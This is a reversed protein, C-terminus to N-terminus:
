DSIGADIFARLTAKSEDDLWALQVLPSMRSHIKAVPDSSFIRRHHKFGTAIALLYILGLIIVPEDEPDRAAKKAGNRIATVVNEDFFAGRALEVFTAKCSEDALVGVSELWAAIPSERLQQWRFGIDVDTTYLTQEPGTFFSPASQSMGSFSCSDHSRSLRLGCNAILDDFMTQDLAGPTSLLAMIERFEESIGSELESLSSVPLYDGICHKMHSQFKRIVTRVANAASRADRGSRKPRGPLSKKRKYEVAPISVGIYAAKAEGSMLKETRGRRRLGDSLAFYDELDKPSLCADVLKARSNMGFHMFRVETQEDTLNDRIAQDFQDLTTIRKDTSFELFEGHRVRERAEVVSNVYNDPLCVAPYVIQLPVPSQSNIRNIVLLADVPTVFGNGDVDLETRVPADSSDTDRNLHNIIRLADDSAVVGDGNVDLPDRDVPAFSDSNGRVVHFSYTGGEMSFTIQGSDGLSADPVAISISFSTWEGPRLVVKEIEGVIAAETAVPQQLHLDSAGDNRVTAFAMPAQGSSDDIAFLGESIRQSGGGHLFVTPSADDQFRLQESWYNEPLPGYVAAPNSAADPESVPSLAPVELYDASMNRREELSEFRLRKGTHRSTQKTFSKCFARTLFATLM